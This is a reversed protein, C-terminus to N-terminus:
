YTQSNTMEMWPLTRGEPKGPIEKLTKFGFKQYFPVAHPDALVGFRKQAYKPQALAYRLLKGGFGKGIYDPSIWCHEVECSGDPHTIIITFGIIKGETIIKWVDNEAILQPSITLDPKWIELWEAPYGWYSKASFAIKSFSNHDEAQGRIIQYSM